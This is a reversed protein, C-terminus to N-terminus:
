KEMLKKEKAEDLREIFRDILFVKAERASYSGSDTAVDIESRNVDFRCWMAFNQDSSFRKGMKRNRQANRARYLTEYIPLTTLRKDLDKNIYIYHENAIKWYSEYIILKRQNDRRMIMSNGMYIAWWHHKNDPDEFDQEDIVYEIIDGEILVSLCENNRQLRALTEKNLQQKNFLKNYEEFTDYEDEMDERDEQDTSSVENTEFLYVKFNRNKKKLREDDNFTVRNLNATYAYDNLQYEYNSYRKNALYGRTQNQTYGNLYKNSNNTNIHLDLGNQNLNADYSQNLHLSSNHHYLNNQSLQLNQLSPNLSASELNWQNSNNNNYGYIYNNYDYRPYM